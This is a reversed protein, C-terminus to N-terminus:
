AVTSAKRRDNRSGLCRMPGLCTPSASAAPARATSGTAAVHAAAPIMTATTESVPSPRSSDLMMTSAAPPDSARVATNLASATSITPRATGTVAENMMAATIM